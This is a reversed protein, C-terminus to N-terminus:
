GVKTTKGPRLGLLEAAEAESFHLVRALRGMEELSWRGSNLRASFGSKSLGIREALEYHRDIGCKAMNMLIIRRVRERHQQAPDLGIKVRPM